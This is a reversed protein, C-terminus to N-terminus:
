NVTEACDLSLSLNSRGRGLLAACSTMGEEGKEASILIPSPAGFSWQCSNINQLLTMSALVDDRSVCAIEIGDVSRRDGRPADGGTAGLSPRHASSRSRVHSLSWAAVTPATRSCPRERRCSVAVANNQHSNRSPSPPRGSSVGDRLFFGEAGLEKRRQCFSWDDGRQSTTEPHEERCLSATCPVRVTSACRTRPRCLFVVVCM